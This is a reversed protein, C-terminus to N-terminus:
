IENKHKPVDNQRESGPRIYKKLRNGNITVLKGEIRYCGNDLVREVKFPGTWFPSLKGGKRTLKRTNHLLVEDRVKFEHSNAKKDHHKKQKKQKTKINDAASKRQQTLNLFANIRDSLDEESASTSPLKIDIPLRARRGYVLFFPTNKTTAHESTRYAFLVYALKKDWDDHNDNVYHVLMNSLTRNFRETHGGTQPHYPSAVKHTIGIETCFLDNLKNYFERGQDTILDKPVGHTCVLRIFIPLVTEANKDPIAEAEVWKTLYETFVLIYKNGSFSSLM